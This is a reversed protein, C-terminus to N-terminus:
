FKVYFSCPCVKVQKTLNKSEDVESELSSVTDQAKRLKGEVDLKEAKLGKIIENSQLLQEAKKVNDISL